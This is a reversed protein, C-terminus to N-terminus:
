FAYGMTFNIADIDLDAEINNNTSSTLKLTDFNTNEYAVKWVFNDMTGKYGIGLNVGDVEKNGYSGHNPRTNAETTEVDITSRGAKVFLGSYVPVEVYINRFNKIIGEDGAICFDDSQFQVNNDASFEELSLCSDWDIFDPIVSKDSIISSSLDDLFNNLTRLILIKSKM